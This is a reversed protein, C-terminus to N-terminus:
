QSEIIISLDLFTKGREKVNLFLVDSMNGCNEVNESRPSYHM